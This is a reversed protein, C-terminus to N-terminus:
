APNMGKKGSKDEPESRRELEAAAEAVDLFAQFAVARDGDFRWLHAMRRETEIGSDAGRAFHRQVALVHDGREDYREVEIRFSDYSGLAQSFFERAADRSEFRPAGPFEMPTQWVIAEDAVDFARELDGGNFAEYTQELRRVRPSAV